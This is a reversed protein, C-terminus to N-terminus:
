QIFQVFNPWNIILIIMLISAVLHWTKLSFHVLITKPQPEAGSGAPSSV